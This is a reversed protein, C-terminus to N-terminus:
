VLLIVTRLRTLTDPPHDRGSGASPVRQTDPEALEILSILVAVLIAAALTDYTVNKPLAKAVAVPEVLPEDQCTTAM